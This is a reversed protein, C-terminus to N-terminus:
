LLELIGSVFTLVSFGIYLISIYKRKYFKYNNFAMIGLTASLLFYVVFLMKENFFLTIVGFIILAIILLIQIYLTVAKFDHSKVEIIKVNNM